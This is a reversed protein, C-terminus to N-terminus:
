LTTDLLPPQWLRPLKRFRSHGYPREHRWHTSSNFAKGVIVVAVAKGVLLASIIAIMLPFNDIITTIFASPDILFGTVVFFIPIFLSNGFFELKEKAPKKPRRWQCGTRGPICWRDGAFQYLPL